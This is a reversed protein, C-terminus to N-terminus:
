SIIKSGAAPYTQLQDGGKKIKLVFELFINVVRKSATLIVVPNNGHITLFFNTQFIRTEYVCFNAFNATKTVIKHSLSVYIM